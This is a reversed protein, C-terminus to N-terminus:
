RTESEMASCQALLANSGDYIIMAVEVTGSEVEIWIEEASGAMLLAM